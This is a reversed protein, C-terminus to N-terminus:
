LLSKLRLGVTKLSWNELAYAHAAMGVADITEPRLDKLLNLLREATFPELRFVTDPPLHAFDGVDTVVVAKGNGMFEYGKSPTKHLAFRGTPSQLVLCLRARDLISEYEADSVFGHLRVELNELSEIGKEFWGLRTGYGCVDFRYRSSLQRDKDLESLTEMLLDIGHEAEISGSYLVTIKGPESELHRLPFIAMCGTVVELKKHRGVVSTFHHTPVIVSKSLRIMLKMLFWGGFQQLAREGSSPLWDSAKAVCVDELDEVIARVGLFLRAFVAAMVYSPYYTYVLLAKLGKRRKLGWLQLPLAVQEWLMGMLPLGIAPAYIIAIGNKRRIRKRHLLRGCWRMRMASAPSVIVVREGVSQLAMALRLMRNSGAPNPCPLGRQARIEDDIYGGVLVVM